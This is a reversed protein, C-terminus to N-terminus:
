KNIKFGVVKHSTTQKQLLEDRLKQLEEQNIVKREWLWRLNNTLQEDTLFPDSIAYRNLLYQKQENYMLAIFENVRGKNPSNAYLVVSAGNILWITVINEYTLRLFLLFVALLAIYLMIDQATSPQKTEFFFSITTIVVGLFLLISFILFTTNPTQKRTVTFSIDEFKAQMELHSIPTAQKIKLIGDGLEFEKTVFLNRQKLIREM